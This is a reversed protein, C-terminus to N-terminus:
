GEQWRSSDAGDIALSATANLALSSHARATALHHGLGAIMAANDTCFEPDPIAVDVRRLREGLAARLGRNSAVGGVVALRRLGAHALARKAKAIL